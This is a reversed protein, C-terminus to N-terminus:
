DWEKITGTEMYQEIAAIIDEMSRDDDNLAQIRMLFSRDTFSDFGCEKLKDKVFDRSNHARTITEDGLKLLEETSLGVENLVHGVACFCGSAANYYQCEWVVEQKKLREIVNLLVERKKGQFGGTATTMM